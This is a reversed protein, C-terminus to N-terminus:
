TQEGILRNCFEPKFIDEEANDDEDDFEGIAQNRM